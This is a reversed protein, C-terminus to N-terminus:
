FDLSAVNHLNWFKKETNIFKSKAKKEEGKDIIFNLALPQIYM